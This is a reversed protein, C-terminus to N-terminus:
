VRESASLLYLALCGFVLVPLWAALWPFVAGLEGVSMAIGDLIFFAFGLGVGVAFLVGLGGGRRFRTALPIVLAVMVLSVFFLSIRKHWWTEYVYAPRIGFGNNAIFYSLDGLTMEEPDGSRSGAEAARMTGAYTMQTARRPESADRGYAVANQLNWGDAELTAAEAYIQELLIGAEDRRFIVVDSLRTAEANATAARMIDTGSRLWIPDREGIKLKKEGYDAIGWARLAPAATPVLRDVIAFHVAGILLALPALLMIMRAPSLGISWIATLENRYSLETITLLLALLLSIPLFTAMTAPTRALIYRGIMSLGSGDLALIEKAYAVVELTLVFLALGLLIPVFRMLLMRGFMNAIRNM